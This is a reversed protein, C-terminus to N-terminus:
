RAGPSGPRIPAIKPKPGVPKDIRVTWCRCGGDSTCGELPTPNMAHIENEASRCAECVYSDNATHVGFNYGLDDLIEDTM